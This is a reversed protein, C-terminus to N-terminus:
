QKNADKIDESIYPFYGKDEIALHQAVVDYIVFSVVEEL